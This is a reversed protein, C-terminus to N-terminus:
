LRGRLLEDLRTKLEAKAIEEALLETQLQALSPLTKPKPTTQKPMADRYKWYEDLKDEPINDLLSFLLNDSGMVTAVAPDVNLVTDWILTTHRYSQGRIKSGTLGLETGSM